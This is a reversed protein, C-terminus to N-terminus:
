LACSLSKLFFGNGNVDLLLVTSFILNPFSNFPVIIHQGFYSTSESSLTLAYVIVEHGSSRVAM